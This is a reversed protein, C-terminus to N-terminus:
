MFHATREAVAYIQVVVLHAYLLASALVWLLLLVVVGAGPFASSAVLWTVIALLLVPAYAPLSQFRARAYVARAGPRLAARLPRASLAEEAYGDEVYILRSIPAVGIAFMALEYVGVVAAVSGLWGRGVSAGGDALLFVVAVCFLALGGVLIPLFFFVFDILIAFLGTIYRTFLDRWPPLPTPFGKRINDLSEVVLGEALPYGVVTLMLAGGILIQRWWLRDNHINRLAARLSMDISCINACRM